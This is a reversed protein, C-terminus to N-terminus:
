IKKIYEATGDKISKIFEKFKKIREEREKERKLEKERVDNIKSATTNLTIPLNIATKGFFYTLIGTPIAGLKSIGTKALIGLTGIGNIIAFATCISTLIWFAKSRFAKNDDKRKDDAAKKARFEALEKEQNKDFEVEEIEEESLVTFTDTKTNNLTIKYRKCIKEEFQKIKDNIDDLNEGKENIQKYKELLLNYENLDGRIHEINKSLQEKSYKPDNNKSANELEELRKNLIDVLEKNEM